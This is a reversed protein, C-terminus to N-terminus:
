KRAVIKIKYNENEEEFNTLNEVKEENVIEKIKKFWKENIKKILELIEKENEEADCICKISFRKVVKNKRLDRDTTTKILIGKLIIEDDLGVEEDLKTKMHNLDVNNQIMKNIRKLKNVIMKKTKAKLHEQYIEIKRNPVLIMLRM